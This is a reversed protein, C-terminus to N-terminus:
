KFKFGKGNKTTYNQIRYMEEGFTRGSKLFHDSIISGTPGVQTLSFKMKNAKKKTTTM